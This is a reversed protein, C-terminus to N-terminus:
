ENLKQILERLEQKKEEPLFMEFVGLSLAMLVDLGAGSQHGMRSAMVNIMDLSIGGPVQELMAMAEKPIYGNAAMGKIM